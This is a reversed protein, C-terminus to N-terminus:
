AHPTLERHNFTELRLDLRFPLTLIIICFPLDLSLFVAKQIIPKVEPIRGTISQWTLKRRM